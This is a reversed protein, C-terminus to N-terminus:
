MESVANMALLHKAAVPLETPVVGVLVEERHEYWHGILLLMAQKITEPVSDADAYGATFTITVANVKDTEVNPWSIGSALVIRGPESTSDVQYNAGGWTQQDGNSDYYVISSVSQLPPRPVYITDSSPFDDGTLTYTASMLQRKTHAEAAERATVILWTILDDDDTTTVRAHLKANALSVPESAPDVTRTLAM